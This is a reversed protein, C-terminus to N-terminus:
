ARHVKYGERTIQNVKLGIEDGTKAEEVKEHEIEMSEVTQTFDTNAGGVIRISDGLRLPNFLKVAAVAIKPYYHTVQGILEGTKIEIV